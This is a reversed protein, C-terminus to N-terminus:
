LPSSPLELLRKPLAPFGASCPAPEPEGRLSLPGATHSMALGQPPMVDPKLWCHILTTLRRRADSVWVALSCPLVFSTAGFTSRCGLIGHLLLKCSCAALFQFRQLWLPM